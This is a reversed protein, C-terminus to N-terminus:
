VHSILERDLRGECTLTVTSIRFSGKIYLIALASMSSNKTYFLRQERFPRLESRYEKLDEKASKIKSLGLSALSCLVQAEVYSVVRNGSLHTHM